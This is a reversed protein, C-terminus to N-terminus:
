DEIKLSEVMDIKNIKRFSICISIFSFIYTLLMTLIYTKISVSEIFVVNTNRMSYLISRHLIIGLILGLISAIVTLILTESYIYKFIEIKRFGLVKITSIEKKRENINIDLLSYTVIFSLLASFITIFLVIYNLSNSIKNYVLKQNNTEYIYLIDDIKFFETYDKIANKVLVINEKYKYGLSEYYKKTMYIYNGSFNKFSNEVNLIYKKNYYDKVVVNDKINKSALELARQSIYIGKDELNIKNNNKDILKIFDDVNNEFIYIDIYKEQKDILIKGFIKQAYIYKNDRLLKRINNKNYDNTLNIESKYPRLYEFQYNPINSFSDKISFALFILSSCGAIGIINIALKMKYRFINRITIKTTFKLKNWIYTFKEFFITGGKVPSKMKLLSSVSVNLSSKISLYVSIFSSIFSAILSIIFLKPSFIFELNNFTTISGSNYASYIFRPLYSFGLIDGIILGIITPILAYVLYKTLITNDSYGLFRLTGISNRDEEILRTMTTITIFIVIFYFIIPFIKSIINLSEIGEIYSIYSANDMYTSVIYINDLSYIKDKIKKIQELYNNNEFEIKKQNIEKEKNKLIKYSKKLEEKGKNLKQINKDYNNIFNNKKKLLKKENKNIDINGIFLEERKNELESIKINIEDKKAILEQLKLDLAKKNNLLNEKEKIIKNLGDNIDKIYNSKKTESFFISTSTNNIKDLNLKLEKEKDNIKNLGEDIKNLSEKLSYIGYNLEVLADKLKKIGNEIDISAKKIEVKKSYILKENKDLQNKADKIIKEKNLLNKNIGNLMNKKNSIEIEGNKIKEFGTLIKNEEVLLPYIKENRFKEIKGSAYLKQEIDNKLEILNTNKRVKVYINKLDSEEFNSWVTYALIDTKNLGIYAIEHNDLLRHIPNEFYGTIVYKKKDIKIYSNIPYIKKLRYEIILENNNKPEKGEIINLKTINKPLSFLNIVEKENLFYEKNYVYEINDINKINNLIEKDKEDFGLNNFIKIDYVNYKNYINIITKNMSEPLINLAIYTSSGLLTIMMLYLFRAKNKLIKRLLEKNISNM